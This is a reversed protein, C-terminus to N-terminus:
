MIRASGLTPEYDEPISFLMVTEQGEQDGM